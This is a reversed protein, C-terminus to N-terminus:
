SLPELRGSVIRSRKQCLSASLSRHTTLVVIRRPDSLINKLVQEELAPDLASTAEDLLLVPATRLLARAIAIRQSQGESLGLGGSGLRTELGHPLARVFDAACAIELANWLEEESADQRTMRLNDAISAAFLSAGQPVAAFLPRTASSLPLTLDGVCIEASGSSLPLLGLLLKLLTTKGEGSPGPVALSEGTTLSFCADTLVADARDHYAYAAHEVRLTLPEGQRWLDLARAATELGSEDCAECPLAMFSRYREAAVSASALSPILALLAGFAETLEGALLLFLIFTGTTSDGQWLRWVGRLLCLLAAVAGTMRNVSRLLAANRSQALRSFRYRAFLKGLRSLFLAELSFIRLPYIRRISESQLSLIEAREERIMLDLRSLARSLPRTLLLSTPAAIVALLAIVPDLFLLVLFIVSLEAGRVILTPFLGCVGASLTEADTNLRSLLDGSRSAEITQLDLHLLKESAAEALSSFASSQVEAALLSSAASLALGLLVLASAIVAPFLAATHRLVADILARSALASGVSCLASTLSFVLFFALKRRHKLLLPGFFDFLQRLLALLSEQEM